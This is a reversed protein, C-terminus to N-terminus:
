GGPSPNAAWKFGGQRARGAGPHEMLRMMQGLSQVEAASNPVSQAPEERRSESRLLEPPALLMM